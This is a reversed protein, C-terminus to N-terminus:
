RSVLLTVRAHVTFVIGRTARKYINELGTVWNSSSSIYHELLAFLLRQTERVAPSTRSVSCPYLCHEGRCRTVRKVGTASLNRAARDCAADGWRPLNWSQRQGYVLISM